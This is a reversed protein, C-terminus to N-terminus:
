GVGLRELSQFAAALERLKRVLSLPAGDPKAPDSRLAALEKDQVADFIFRVEFNTLMVSFESPLFRPVRYRQCSAPGEIIESLAIENHDDILQVLKTYVEARPPGFGGFASVASKMWRVELLSFTAELESEEEWSM